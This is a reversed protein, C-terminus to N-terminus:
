KRQQNTEEEANSEEEPMQDSVDNTAKKPPQYGYKEWHTKIVNLDESLQQQKEECEKIFRSLEDVSTKQQAVHDQVQGKINLVECNLEHYARRGRATSESDDESNRTEFASQLRTTETELTLGLKRLKAFFQSSPNM